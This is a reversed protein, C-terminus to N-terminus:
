SKLDEKIQEKYLRYDKGLFETIKQANREANKLSVSAGPSPTVDFIIDDKVIKAEGLVPRKEKVDVIQPRIGGLTKDVKLDSYEISPTIKRAEKLYLYKGLLPIDYLIQMLVYRLYTPDSLINLIALIADLRFEFLRFFDAFSEWSYDKEIMPLFRSVPGFRTEEPKDVAPDAHIAAFPLKPNQMMYVKGNVMNEACFYSGEAPLIIWDKAYGMDKAFYLSYGGASVLVTKANIKRNKTKISFQKGEEINQVKTNLEIDINKDTEKAEEVFSHAIKGYNMIYGNSNKLAIMETNPNRGKVLKPELEAIEERGIKELNPFLEKFEEFREELRQVEEKGIGLVMKHPKRFLNKEKRDEVYNALMEAASKVKKAKELSYNTEIDGFHLTQSNGMKHSAVQAIDDKKEILVASDINTYKSLMFLTSSGVIGGGVIAVDYTKSNTETM